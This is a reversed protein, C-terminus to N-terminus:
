KTFRQGKWAVGPQGLAFGVRSQAAQRKRARIVDVATVKVEYHAGSPEYTYDLLTGLSVELLECVEARTICAFEGKIAAVEHSVLFVLRETRLNAGMLTIVPTKEGPLKALVPVNKRVELEGREKSGDPKTETRRLQADIVLELPRSRGRDGGGGDGGGGPSPAPQATVEEEIASSGGGGASGDSAGLATGTSTTELKVDDPLSTYKQKFPNHASRDGLRKRYDRLGPTAEVVALSASASEPKVAGVGAAPPPLVEPESDGLLFPVAAIAVVVFAIPLLLRRDRLDYYLDTLFVPPKIAPGKAAAGGLKPKRLKPLKLEPGKKLWNM